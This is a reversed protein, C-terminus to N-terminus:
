KKLSKCGALPPRHDRGDNFQGPNENHATTTCLIAAAVTAIM